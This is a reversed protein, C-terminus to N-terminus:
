LFGATQSCPGSERNKYVADFGIKLIRLGIKGPNSEESLQGTFAQTGPLTRVIRTAAIGDATIAQEGRLRRGPTYPYGSDNLPTINGGGALM